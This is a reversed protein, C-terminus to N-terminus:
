YKKTLSIFPFFPQDIITNKPPINFNTERISSIPMQYVVVNESKYYRLKRGPIRLTAIAGRINWREKKQYFITVVNNCQGYLCGLDMWM